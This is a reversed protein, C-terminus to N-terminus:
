PDLSGTKTTGRLVLDEQCIGLLPSVRIHAFEVANNKIRIYHRKIYSSHTWAAWYNYKGLKIKTSFKQNTYLPIVDEIKINMTYKDYIM